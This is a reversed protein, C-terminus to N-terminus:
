IFFWGDHYFIIKFCSESIQLSIFGICDNIYKPQCHTNCGAQENEEDYSEFGAKISEVLVPLGSVPKNTLKM